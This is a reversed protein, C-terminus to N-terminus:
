DHELVAFDLEFRALYKRSSSSSLPRILAVLARASTALM